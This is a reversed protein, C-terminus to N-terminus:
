LGNWSRTPKVLRAPNGAALTYPPVDRVVVAGAAIIAGQGITVDKLIYAGCGIWVNDGIVIDGPAEDGGGAAHYDKGLVTVNWSLLVHNGIRVLRGSHIQASDGVSSHHGIILEAPPGSVPGIAVLKVDSWLRSRDGILIRGNRKIVRTGGRSSILAPRDFRLTTLSGRCYALSETINGLISRRRWGSLLERIAMMLGSHITSSAAVHTASLELRRDAVSTPQPM